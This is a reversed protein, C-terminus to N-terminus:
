RRNRQGAGQIARLMRQLDRRPVGRGRPAQPQPRRQAVLDNAQRAQNPRAADGFPRRARGNRNEQAPSRSRSHSRARAAPPGQQPQRGRGGDAAFAVQSRLIDQASAPSNHERRSNIVAM